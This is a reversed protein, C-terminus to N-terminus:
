YLNIGRAATLSLTTKWPDLEGAILSIWVRQPASAAAAPQSWDCHEQTRWSAVDSMGENPHLLVPPKLAVRSRWRCSQPDSHRELGLIYVLRHKGFSLFLPKTLATGRLMGSSCLALLTPDPLWRLNSCHSRGECPAGTGTVCCALHSNWDEKLERESQDVVLTGNVRHLYFDM